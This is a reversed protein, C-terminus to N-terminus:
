GLRWRTSRMALTLLLACWFLVVLLSRGFGAYANPFSRAVESQWREITTDLSGGAQELATVVDVTSDAVLRDFAGPSSSLTFHLLSARAEEDVPLPPRVSDSFAAVCDDFVRREICQHARWGDLSLRLWRARERLEEASYWLSWGPGPDALGLIAACADIQRQMCRKAGISNSILLSRYARTHPSEPSSSAKGVWDRLSPPLLDYVAADMARYVAGAQWEPELESIWIVEYHRPRNRAFERMTNYHSEGFVLLVSGRLRTAGSGLLPEYERWKRRAIWISRKFPLGHGVILLPGVPVTDLKGERLEQERERAHRAKVEAQAQEFVPLLSDIRALATARQEATVRAVSQAHAPRDWALMGACLMLWRMMRHDSM